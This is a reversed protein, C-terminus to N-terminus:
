AIEKKFLRVAFINRGFLCSCMPGSSLITALEAYSLAILVAASAAPVFGQWLGYGAKGAAQGIISYIGAGWIIGTEYFTLMTLGLSRKRGM